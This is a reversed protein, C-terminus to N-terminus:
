RRCDIWERETAVADLPVDWAEAVFGEVEQSSYGVGVLLPPASQGNRFAFSRDYFGGGMGLRQGVRTYALLPLLVVAMDTAALMSAPQLDPEPIGYRNSVLADGPRWPGFGLSGDDRLMPLCWVQRASLRMQLVHLPLEGNMAWYGAIYGECDGLQDSFQRSVAEAAAMREAPKLALRQARLRARLQRRSAASESDANDPGLLFFDEVM